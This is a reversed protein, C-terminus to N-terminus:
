QRVREDDVVLAPPRGRRPLGGLERGPHDFASPRWRLRCRSPLIRLRWAPPRLGSVVVGVLPRGDRTVAARITATTM